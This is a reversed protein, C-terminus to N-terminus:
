ETPSLSCIVSAVLNTEKDAPYGVVSFLYDTTDPHFFMVGSIQQETSGYVIGRIGNFNYVKDVSFGAEELSEKLTEISDIDGNELYAVKVYPSGSADGALYLVGQEALQDTIDFQTWDSPLYIKFGDEFMIWAGDYDAMDETFKVEEEEVKEEEKNHLSAIGGVVAGAGVLNEADSSETDPVAGNEDMTAAQMLSSGLSHTSDVHRAYDSYGGALGAASAAVSDLFGSPITYGIEPVEKAGFMYIKGMLETFLRTDSCNYGSIGYNYVVKTFDKGGLSLGEQVTDVDLDRYNRAMYNTFADSFDELDGDFDYEGIIVYPISGESMTYIYVNEDSQEIGEYEPVTVSINLDDLAVVDGEPVFEELSEYELEDDGGLLSMFLDELTMSSPDQKTSVGAYVSGASGLFMVAAAAAALASKWVKKKM